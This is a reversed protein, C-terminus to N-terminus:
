LKKKNILEKLKTKLKMKIKFKLYNNIIIRFIMSKNRHIKNKFAKNM